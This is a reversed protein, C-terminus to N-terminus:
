FDIVELKLLPLPSTIIKEVSKEVGDTVIETTKLMEKQKEYSLEM